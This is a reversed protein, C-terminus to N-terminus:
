EPGLIIQITQRGTYKKHLYGADGPVDEVEHEVNLKEIRDRNKIIHPLVQDLFFDFVNKGKNPEDAM